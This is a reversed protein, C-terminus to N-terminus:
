VNEPLVFSQKILSSFDLLSKKTSVPAVREKIGKWDRAGFQLCYVFLGNFRPIELVSRYLEITPFVCKGKKPRIHWEGENAQIKQSKQPHLHIGRGGRDGGWV